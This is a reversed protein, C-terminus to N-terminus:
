LQPFPRVDGTRAQGRHHGLSAAQTAPCTSVPFGPIDEYAIEIPDELAQEFGGLGSGLIVAIEAPGCNNMVLDAANKIKKYSM